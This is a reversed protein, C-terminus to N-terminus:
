LYDKLISEHRDDFSIEDSLIRSNRKDLIFFGLSELLLYFSKMIKAVMDRINMTSMIESPIGNQEVTEKPLYFTQIISGYEEYIKCLETSIHDDEIGFIFKSWDTKNNLETKIKIVQYTPEPASGYKNSFVKQWLVHHRHNGWNTKTWGEPKKYTDQAHIKTRGFYNSDGKKIQAIVNHEINAVEQLIKIFELDTGKNIETGIYKELASSKNQIDKPANTNKLTVGKSEWKLKDYVQGECANQSAYYHKAMTTLAFFNFAYENKMQLLRIQERPVGMCGSMVALVHTTYQSCIYTLASSVSFCLISDDVKGTYWEVWAQNTFICSDTDSGVIITRVSEPFMAMSPCINRNVLFANFYDSYTNMCEFINKALEGMQRYGITDKPMEAAKKGNLLGSAVIGIHGMEDDDMLKIYKEADEQSITVEDVEPMAILGSVLNKVVGDNYKSANFLDGTYLWCARELPNLNNILLRLTEYAKQDTFYLDTCRVVAEYMEDASPYHLNYKNMVKLVLDLDSLNIVSIINNIAINVTHYHRNGCLLREVNANTNSTASRCTSTLSSHASKLYLISSTTGQAGSLSNCKIKNRNQRNDYISDLLENGEGRYKFMLKKNASRTALQTEIYHSTRSKKEKPHTYATMTPSLIFHKEEVEKLFESIKTSEMTRDGDDRHLYAVQPNTYPITKNKLGLVVKERAEEQPIKRMLSIYKSADDIYYKMMNLDRNYLNHDIQTFATQM